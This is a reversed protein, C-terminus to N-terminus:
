TRWVDPGGDGGRASQPIANERGVERMGHCEPHLRRQHCRLTSVLFECGPTGTEGQQCVENEDTEAM